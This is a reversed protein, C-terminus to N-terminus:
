TDATAGDKTKALQMPYKKVIDRLPSVMELSELKAWDFNRFFPHNKIEDFGNAGLRKTPDVRLFSNIMDKAEDSIAAGKWERKRETDMCLKIFKTKVIM